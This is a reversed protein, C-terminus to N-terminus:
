LFSELEFRDVGAARGEIRVRDGERLRNFRDIVRRPANFPVTVIVSRNRRDRLEFTGRRPDIFEVKGEVIDLRGGSKGTREQVSERVTITDAYNRGGREQRIRAAIYDGAELNAVEYNRERYIVRTRDDYSLVAIRGSDERVEIEGRRTDIYEVEGIVGSDGLGGYDGLGDVHGLEHCGAFVAVAIMVIGLFRATTKM